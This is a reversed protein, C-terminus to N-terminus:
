YYIIIFMANANNKVSGLPFADFQICSCKASMDTISHTLLGLNYTYAEMEISAKVFKSRHVTFCFVLFVDSFHM